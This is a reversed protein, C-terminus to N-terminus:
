DLDSVFAKNVLQSIVSHFNDRTIEVEKKAIDSITNCTYCNMSNCFYRHTYLIDIGNQFWEIDKEKMCKMLEEVNEADPSRPYILGLYEFKHEYEKGLYEKRLWNLKSDMNYMVKVDIYFEKFRRKRDKLDRFPINRMIKNENKIELIKIDSVRLKPYFNMDFKGGVCKKSGITFQKYGINDITIQLTKGALERLDYKSILNRESIVYSGRVCCHRVLSGYKEDNSKNQDQINRMKQYLANRTDLNEKCPLIVFEIAGYATASAVHVNLKLKFISANSLKNILPIKYALFADINSAM